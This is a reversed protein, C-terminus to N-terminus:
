VNEEAHNEKRFAPSYKVGEFVNSFFHSNYFKTKRKRQIWGNKVAERLRINFKSVHHPLARVLDAFVFHSFNRALLLIMRDIYEADPLLPKTPDYQPIIAYKKPEMM